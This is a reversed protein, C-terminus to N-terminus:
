RSAELAFVEVDVGVSGLVHDPPRTPATWGDWQLPVASWAGLQPTAIQYPAHHVQGTRIGNPTNAFLFYREVLFFELSGPTAERTPSAQAYQYVAAETQGRRRCHYQVAGQSRQGGMNAHQYPLHFLTRATWVALPQDCDLSFFWVGPRGEDDHVYTRVNLEMFWSIWPLAPMFRPRIREMFFPVVGLWANGNFTDVHLGAPLKSQLDAADWEWHLFLLDRWQQFMVPSRGIPRVRTALRQDLTPPQVVSM